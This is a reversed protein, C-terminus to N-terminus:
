YPLSDVELANADAIKEVILQVIRDGGKHSCDAPGHNRLIVKIERTYDADIVGGGVAIGIKSVMASRAALMGYPSNTVPHVPGRFVHAGPGKGQGVWRLPRPRLTNKPM